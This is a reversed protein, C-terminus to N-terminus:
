PIIPLYPHIQHILSALSAVSGLSDLMTKIVSSRPQPRNIERHLTAIDAIHNEQHEGGISEDKSLVDKWSNLIKGANDVKNNKQKQTSNDSNVQIQSDKNDSIYISKDIKVNKAKIENINIRINGDPIVLLNFRAEIAKEKFVTNSLISDVISKGAEETAQIEFIFKTCGQGGGILHINTKYRHEMWSTLARIKDADKISLTVFSHLEFRQKKGSQPKDPLITERAQAAEIIKQVMDQM